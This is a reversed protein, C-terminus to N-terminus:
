DSIVEGKLKIGISSSHDTFLPKFIKSSSNSFISKDNVYERHSGDVTSWSLQESM